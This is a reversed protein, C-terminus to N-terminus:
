LSHQSITIIKLTSGRSAATSLMQRNTPSQRSKNQYTIKIKGAPAPLHCNYKFSVKWIASHVSDPPTSVCLQNNYKFDGDEQSTCPSQSQIQVLVELHRGYRRRSTM